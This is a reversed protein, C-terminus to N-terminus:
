KLDNYLENWLWGKKEWSYENYTFESLQNGRKIRENTSWHSAENLAQTLNELEPEILIGGNNNWEKKLGTNWTTIVPTKLSAAELNVMGIVESYSPNVFARAQGFLKVKEDGICEGVCEIRSNLNKSEILKKITQSYENPFGALKLKIKKNEIKEFAQILLEIGKVKHFRGLFLFYDEEPNFLDSKSNEDISILNPIEVINKHGSLRYLNEKENSTIAHLVTTNQLLKKLILHYYVQKKFGKDQFLYPELMGHATLVSPAKKIRAIKSAIYQPYMWVGHLHIISNSQITKQLYTSLDSNYHWANRKSHLEHFSDSVEKQLTIVKSKFDDSSNLYHDLKSIMTRLGGSEYTLDEAIHFIEKPKM